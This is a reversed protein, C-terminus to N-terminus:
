ATDEKLLRDPSIKILYRLSNHLNEVSNECGSGTYVNVFEKMPAAYERWVRGGVLEQNLWRLTQRSYIVSHYYDNHLKRSDTKHTENYKYYVSTYIEKLLGVFASSHIFTIKICLLWRCTEDVRLAMTVTTLVLICNCNVYRFWDVALYITYKKLERNFSHLISSYLIYCSLINERWTIHLHPICYTSSM